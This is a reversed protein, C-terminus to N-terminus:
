ESGNHRWAGGLSSVKLFKKEDVLDAEHDDIAMKVVCRSMRGPEKRSPIEFVSILVMGGIGIVRRFRVGAEWARWAVDNLVMSADELGATGLSDPRDRLPKIPPYPRGGIAPRQGKTFGHHVVRGKRMPIRARRINDPALADYDGGDRYQRFRLNIKKQRRRWPDARRPMAKM